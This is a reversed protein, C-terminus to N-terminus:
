GVGDGFVRSVKEWGELHIGMLVVTIKNLDFYRLPHLFKASPVGEKIGQHGVEM